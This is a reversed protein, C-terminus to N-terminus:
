ARARRGQKRAKRQRQRSLRRKFREQAWMRAWKKREVPTMNRVRELQDPPIPVLGRKLAAGDDEDSDLEIIRGTKTDM